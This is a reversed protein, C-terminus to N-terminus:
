EKVSVPEEGQLEKNRLSAKRKRVSDLIFLRNKIRAEIELAPIIAPGLAETSTHCPRLGEM